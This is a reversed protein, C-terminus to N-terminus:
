SEVREIVTAHSMGLAACLTVLGYRLKRRELENIITALLIGGTCGLPHGMAVAGGNVNVKERPVGLEKMWAVPVCAFAENIEFLDIDDITLGARKLAIRTGPIVGDLMERPVVGYNANSLIRARPKLGFERSAEDSAWLAMAAGDCIGSANGAHIMGGPKFPRPLKSMKEVSTEPKIHTDKTLLKETGDADKYPVPIIEADFRGAETAAHAKQNSWVAFEDIEEQALNYKECIIEAAAGQSGLPHKKMMAPPFPLRKYDIDSNIPCMNMHEGGGAMVVDYDGVRISASAFASAQLAGSCYRNLHIGSTTPPLKSSLVINRAVDTAQEKCVTATSYLVDEVKEPPLGPNRELLADVLLAGLAVPHFDALEGAFGKKPKSQRGRPTRVADILYAERM